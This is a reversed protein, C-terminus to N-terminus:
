TFGIDDWFRAAPVLFHVLGDGHVAGDTVDFAVPVGTAPSHTDLRGTGGCLGIISLGDWVCNAFWRRAGITVIFDTPVGSFPHAMWISEGDPGLVIAHARDLARLAEVCVEPTTGLSTALAATSPPDGSARLSAYVAARLDRELDTMVPPENARTSMPMRLVARPRPPRWRKKPGGNACNRLDDVAAGCPLLRSDL